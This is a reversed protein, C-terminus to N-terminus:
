QWLWKKVDKDSPDFTVSALGGLQHCFVGPFPNPSM